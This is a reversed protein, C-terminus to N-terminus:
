PTETMIEIAVSGLWAVFLRPQADVSGLKFCIRTIAVVWEKGRPCLSESRIWSDCQALRAHHDFGNVYTGVATDDTNVVHVMMMMM